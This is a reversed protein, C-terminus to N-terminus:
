QALFYTSLLPTLAPLISFVAKRLAIAQRGRFLRKVAAWSAFLKRLVGRRRGKELTLKATETIPVEKLVVGACALLVIRLKPYSAQEILEKQQRPSAEYLEQLWDRHKEVDERKLRRHM